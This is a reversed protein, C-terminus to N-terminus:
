GRDGDLRPRGAAREAPLVYVVVDHGAIRMAVRQYLDPADEYRDLEGLVDPGVEYIEGTVASDGGEVLAPYGNFDILTFRAETQVQALLPAGRLLAHAAQGRRLTGYVFLKM